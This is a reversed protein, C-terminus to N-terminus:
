KGNCRSRYWITRTNRLTDTRTIPGGPLVSHFQNWPLM